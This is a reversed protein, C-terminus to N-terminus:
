LTYARTHAGMWTQTIFTYSPKEALVPLEQFNSSLDCQVRENQALRDKQPVLRSGMCTKPETHLKEEGSPFQSKIHQVSDRRVSVKRGKGTGPLPLLLLPLQFLAQSHNQPSQAGLLLHYLSDPAPPPIVGFAKGRQGMM